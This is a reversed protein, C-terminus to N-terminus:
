RKMLGRRNSQFSVEGVRSLGLSSLTFFGSQRNGMTKQKRKLVTIYVFKLTSPPEMRYTIRKDAM